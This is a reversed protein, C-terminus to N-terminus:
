CVGRSGKSIWDSKIQVSVDAVEPSFVKCESWSEVSVLTERHLLQLKAPRRDGYHVADLRSLIARYRETVINSESEEAGRLSGENRRKHWLPEVSRAEQPSKACCACDNSPSALRVVESAEADGTEDVLANKSPTLM